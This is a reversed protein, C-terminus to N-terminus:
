PASVGRSMLSYERVSHTFWPFSCTIGVEFGNTITSVELISTYHIHTHQWGLSHSNADELTLAGYGIVVHVGYGVLTDTDTDLGDWRGTAGRFMRSGWGLGTWHSEHKSEAPSINQFLDGNSNWGVPLWIYLCPGHIGRLRRRRLHYLYLYMSVFSERSYLHKIAAGTGSGRGMQWHSGNGAATRTGSSVGTELKDM